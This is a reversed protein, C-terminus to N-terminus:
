EFVMGVGLRVQHGTNHYFNSNHFLGAAIELFFNEPLNVIVGLDGKWAFNPDRIQQTDVKKGEPFGRLSNLSGSLECFVHIKDSRFFCYAIGLQAIFEPPPIKIRTFVEPCYRKYISSKELPTIGTYIALEGFVRQTFFHKWSFGLNLEMYGCANGLEHDTWEYEDWRADYVKFKFYSWNPYYDIFYIQLSLYNEKTSTKM